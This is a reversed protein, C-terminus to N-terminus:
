IGPITLKITKEELYIVEIEMVKLTLNSLELKKKSM